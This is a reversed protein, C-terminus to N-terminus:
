SWAQGFFVPTGVCVGLTSTAIYAGTAVANGANKIKIDAISRLEEQLQNLIAFEGNNILLDRTTKSLIDSNLVPVPNTLLKWGISLDGDYLHHDYADALDPRVQPLKSLQREM